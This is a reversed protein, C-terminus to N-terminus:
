KFEKKSLLRLYTRRFEKRNEFMRSESKSLEGNNFKIEVLKLSCVFDAIQTLRYKEQKVDKKFILKNEVFSFSKLLARSVIQQGNDYYVNITDFMSFYKNNDRLFLSFDRTLTNLIRMENKSFDKKKYIFTKHLVPLISFLVMIRHLYNKRENLNCVKYDKENRIIPGIHFPPNNSFGNLQSAIDDKKDHFVLSVIYYKSSGEEFGTDGSEDCFVNLSKGM